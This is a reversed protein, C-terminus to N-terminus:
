TNKEKLKAEIARCLVDSDVDHHVARIGTYIYDIEEDTLGQWTRQSLEKKRRVLDQANKSLQEVSEFLKNEKPEKQTMNVKKAKYATCTLVTLKQKSVQKACSTEQCKQCNIM